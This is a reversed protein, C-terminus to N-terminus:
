QDLVPSQAQVLGDVVQQGLEGIAPHQADDVRLEVFRDGGVTGYRDLVQEAVPEPESRDHRRGVAVGDLPRLGLQTWLM